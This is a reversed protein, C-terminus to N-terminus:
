HAFFSQLAEAAMEPKLAKMCGNTKKECRTKCCVIIAPVGQIWDRHYADKVAQLQAPDTVTIFHWPQRNVASPALRVCEQVYALKETEVPKNDYARCSYRASCLNRFTM